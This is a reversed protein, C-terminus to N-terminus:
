TKSACQRSISLFLACKTMHPFYHMLIKALLIKETPILHSPKIKIEKNEILTEPFSLDVNTFFASVYRLTKDFTEFGFLISAAKDNRLHWLKNTLNCELIGTNNTIFKILEEEKKLSTDYLIIKTDIFEASRSVFYALIKM